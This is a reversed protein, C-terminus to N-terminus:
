SINELLTNTVHTLCTSTSHIDIWQHPTAEYSLPFIRFPIWNPFPTFHLPKMSLLQLLLSTDVLVKHRVLYVYQLCALHRVDVQKKTNTMRTGVPCFHATQNWKFHIIPKRQRCTQRLWGYVGLVVFTVQVFCFCKKPNHLSSANSAVCWYSIM